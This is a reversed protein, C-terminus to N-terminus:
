SRLLPMHGCILSVHEDAPTPSPQDPEPNPRGPVPPLNAALEADAHGDGVPDTSEDESQQTSAPRPPPVIAGLRAFADRSIRHSYGIM